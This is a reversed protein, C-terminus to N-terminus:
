CYLVVHWQVPSPFDRNTTQDVLFPLLTSQREHAFQEELPQLVKHYTGSHRGRASISLHLWGASDAVANPGSFTYKHKSVTFIALTSVPMRQGKTNYTKREETTVVIWDTKQRCTRLASWHQSEEATVIVKNAVREIVGNLESDSRPASKQTLHRKM